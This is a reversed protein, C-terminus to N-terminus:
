NATSWGEGKTRGETNSLKYCTSSLLLLDFTEDCMKDIKMSTMLTHICYEGKRNLGMRLM